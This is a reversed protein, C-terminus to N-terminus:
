LRSNITSLLRCFHPKYIIIPATGSLRSKPNDHPRHALATQASIFLVTQNLM